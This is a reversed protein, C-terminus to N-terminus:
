AWVVQERLAQDCTYKIKLIGLKEEARPGETDQFNVEDWTHSLIAYPPIDSDVFDRLQRTKTNLLRM